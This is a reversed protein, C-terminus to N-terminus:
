QQSSTLVPTKAPLDAFRLNITGVGPLQVRGTQALQLVTAGVIVGILFQM